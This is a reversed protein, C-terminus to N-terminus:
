GPARRIARRSQALPRARREVLVLAIKQALRQRRGAQGLDDAGLAGPEGVDVAPANEIEVAVADMLEAVAMGLTTSAIRRSISVRGKQVAGSNWDSRSRARGDAPRFPAPPARCSATRASRIPPPRCPASAPASRWRGACSATTRPNTGRRWDRRSRRRRRLRNRRPRPGIIGAGFVQRREIERAAEEAVVM